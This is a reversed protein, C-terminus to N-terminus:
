CRRGAGSLGHRAVYPAYSITKEDKRKLLTRLWNPFSGRTFTFTKDELRVAFTSKTIIEGKYYIVEELTGDVIGKVIRKLFGSWEDVDIGYVDTALSLFANVGAAISVQPPGTSYLRIEIKSAAEDSPVVTLIHCDSDEHSLYVTVDRTPIGCVVSLVRTVVDKNFSTMGSVFRDISEDSLDLQIMRTNM